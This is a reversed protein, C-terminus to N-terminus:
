KTGQHNMTSLVYNCAGDRVMGRMVRVTGAAEVKTAYGDRWNGVVAVSVGGGEAKNYTTRSVIIYRKMGQMVAPRINVSTRM